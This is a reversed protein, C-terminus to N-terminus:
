KLSASISETTKEIFHVIPKAPSVYVKGNEGVVLAEISAVGSDIMKIQKAAELSLDIVRGKVYPGRDNVRVIVTSDNAINRVEIMTGFPLSKHACTLEFKDMREGNATIKGHFHPGYFSARGEFRTGVLPSEPGPGFLLLFFIHFCVTKM